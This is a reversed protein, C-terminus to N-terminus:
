SNIIKIIQNEQSLQHFDEGLEGIYTKEFATSATSIRASKCAELIDKSTYRRLMWTLRNIGGFLKIIM